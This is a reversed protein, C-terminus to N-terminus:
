VHDILGPISYIPMNRVYSCKFYFDAIFQNALQSSVALTRDVNNTPEVIWEEGLMPMSAYDDAYHWADLSGSPSNSRMHGTVRNQKYRYEAWAEQYGFTEENKSYTTENSGSFYLEYNYVSQESLNAFYPNYFDYWKKRTWMKDLGQQYTHETRCVALCLLTGHEEFSKTFMNDNSITCSFGATNGQPTVADTSSTQLVQDINIPIRTGGLYESRQVRADSSTVGFVSQLYEIYRTGNRGAAEYYKQIAFATRLQSITAATANTLDAWLNNIGLYSDTETYRNVNDTTVAGFALTSATPAMQPLNPSETGRSHIGVVYKEPTLYSIPNGTHDIVSPYANVRTGRTSEIAETYATEWRAGVPAWTGLPIAVPEGKQPSPLVSTFYDHMKCAKVPMGGLEPDTVYNNGNSGTRTTEDTYIHCTYQLNEDRFWDSIVKAYARFPLVNITRGDKYTPVGMYDAITGEAYGGEPITIQPIQYETDQIWPDDNEGWFNVWHDWVIRHPVFFWYLDMVMNDMVPYIPTAMRVIEAMDMEVTDAPLIDADCFIPIIDGTNFTTKISHSMNFKSRRHDIQPLNSFHEMTERNM